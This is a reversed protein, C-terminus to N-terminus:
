GAALEGAGRRGARAFGDRDFLFRCMLNMGFTTNNLFWIRGFVLVAALVATALIDGAKV